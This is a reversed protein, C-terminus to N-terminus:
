ETPPAPLPMWHTPEDFSNECEYGDAGDAQWFWNQGINWRHATAMMKGDWILLPTEDMPATEIPQWGDAM